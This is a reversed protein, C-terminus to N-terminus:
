GNITLFHFLQAEFVHRTSCGRIGVVCGANYLTEVQNRIKRLRISVNRAKKGADQMRPRVRTENIIWEPEKRSGRKVLYPVLSRGPGVTACVCVACWLRALRRVKSNHRVKKRTGRKMRLKFLFRRNAFARGPRTQGSRLLVRRFCAGVTAIYFSM